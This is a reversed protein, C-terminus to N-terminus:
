NEFSQFHCIATAHTLCEYVRIIALIKSVTQPPQKLVWYGDAANPAPLEISPLQALQDRFGTPVAASISFLFFPLAYLLLM